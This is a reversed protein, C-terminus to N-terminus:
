NTNHPNGTDSNDDDEHPDGVPTDCTHPNGTPGAAEDCEQSYAAPLVASLVLTALLISVAAITITTRGTIKPKEKKKGEPFDIAMELDEFFVIIRLYQQLLIV